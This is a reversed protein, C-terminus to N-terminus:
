EGKAQSIARLAINRMDVVKSSGLEGNNSRDVIEQLSSILDENAQAAAMQEGLQVAEYIANEIARIEPSFNEGEANRLVYNALKIAKERYYTM